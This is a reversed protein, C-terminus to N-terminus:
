LPRGLHAICDLSTVDDLSRYKEFVKSSGTFQDFGLDIFPRFPTFPLIKGSASLFFTFLPLDHFVQLVRQLEALHTRMTNAHFPRTLVHAEDFVLFVDPLIRTKKLGASTVQDQLEKFASRMDEDSVNGGNINKLVSGTSLVLLPYVGLPAVYRRRWISLLVIFDLGSTGQPIWRKDGQCPCGSIEFANQGRIPLCTLEVLPKTALLPKRLPSLSCESFIAHEPFLNLRYTQIM